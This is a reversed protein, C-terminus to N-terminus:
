LGKYKDELEGIMRGLTQHAQEVQGNEKPHYATTTLQSIGFQSCLQEVVESTFAKGQDMLIRKPAGFISIFGEYLTKIATSERQDKTVYARTYKTFHDVIVLIHEVKPLENLNMTMEFLTFDLHVLQLPATVMMPVMTAKEERGRYLQCRRCNQVVRNVDEYVGPWWFQDSILSETRKGDIATRRHARPVIFCKVEEIQYKPKYRYYLLGGSLTLKDVNWLISRGEPTNKKSGSRSKLKMLQETWSEFKKKNLCCWDMAAEIEPDEHQAEAWNTVHMQTSLRASKVNVKISNAEHHTASNTNYEQEARRGAGSTLNDFIAKMAKSSMTHPAAKEPQWDEGKEESVEFVTDDGPIMPVAELVKEAEEDSLCEESIRSLTDAM